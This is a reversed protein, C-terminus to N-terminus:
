SDEGGAKALASDNDLAVEEIVTACKDHTYDYGTKENYNGHPNEEQCVPCRTIKEESITVRVRKDRGQPVVFTFESGYKREVTAEDLVSKLASYVAHEIELVNLTRKTATM